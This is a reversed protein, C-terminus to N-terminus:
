VKRLLAGSLIYSHPSAFRKPDLRSPTPAVLSVAEVLLKTGLSRGKQLPMMM